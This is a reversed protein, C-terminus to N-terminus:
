DFLDSLFSGVACAVGFGIAAPAFALGTVAAAGTAIATGAAYTGAAASAAGVIGGKIGAGAVDIVADGVEKRGEIVDGISSIAEIGAGIAAGYMGGSKAADAISTATAARGLSKDAIRSTTESSIGSSRVKQSTKGALKAVTEETGFISTKSYKGSNIQKITKQIGAASITDKLQMHGAIKGHQTLVIDRVQATTSKTLQAHIGQVLNVPNANIKDCMMIEHAIGKLQPNQGAREIARIGVSAEYGERAAIGLNRSKKKTDVVVIGGRIKTLYLM